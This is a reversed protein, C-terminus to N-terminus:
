ASLETNVEVQSVTMLRQIPCREAIELLRARQEADDIGLFDMSVMLRYIGRREQSDDRIVSVRVGELPWEKRRAYMRATIAKCAGLAMDLYDHPDPASDSGGILGPGDAFMDEFGEVEIRHRLGERGESTVVITM